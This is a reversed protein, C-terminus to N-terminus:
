HTKSLSVVCHHLRSEFVRGRLRSDLVRGSLWQVGLDNEHFCFSGKTVIQSSGLSYDSSGPWEGLRLLTQQAGMQFSLLGQGASGLNWVRIQAVQLHLFKACIVSLHEQASSLKRWIGLSSKNYMTFTWSSMAGFDERSAFGFQYNWWM